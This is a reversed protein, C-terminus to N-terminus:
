KGMWRYIRDRIWQKGDKPARWPDGFLKSWFRRDDGDFGSRLLTRVSRRERRHEDVKFPKDSRATTIGMVPTKRTSGSM